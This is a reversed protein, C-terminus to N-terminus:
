AAPELDSSRFGRQHLFRAQRAWQKFDSPPQSGFKKSRVEAAKQSWRDEYESMQTTIVDDDIQHQRLDHEIRVPGQGRNYRSLIFQECFRSDSQHGLRILDRLVQEVEDDEAYRCLKNKLELRSYERRSLFEYAKKQLDIARKPDAM